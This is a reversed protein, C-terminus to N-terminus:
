CPARVFRPHQYAHADGGDASTFKFSYLLGALELRRGIDRLVDVVSSFEMGFHGSVLAAPGLPSPKADHVTISLGDADLTIGDPDRTAKWDPAALLQALCELAAGYIQGVIFYLEVRATVKM